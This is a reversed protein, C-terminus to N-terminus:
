NSYKEPRSDGKKEKKKTERKGKLNGRYESVLLMNEKFKKIM